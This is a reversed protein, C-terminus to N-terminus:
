TEGGWSRTFIGYSMISQHDLKINNTSDGGTITARNLDIDVAKLQEVFATKSFLKDIYADKITTVGDKIIVDGDNFEILNSNLKFGNRDFTLDQIMGNSDIRFNFGDATQSFETLLKELTKNTGNMETYSVKTNLGLKNQEIETEHKTLVKDQNDIQTQYDEPAPTWDTAKNGKEVKARWVIFEAYFNNDYSRFQLQLHNSTREGTFVVRKAENPAIDVPPATIGNVNVSMPVDRVNKVYFSVTYIDGEVTNTTNTIQKFIKLTSTRDGAGVYVQTADTAGWEDVSINETVKYPGNQHSTWVNYNFDNSNKNLNTGGIELEDFKQEVSTIKSNVSDSLQNIESKTNKIDQTIGNIDTTYESKEVKSSIQNSLLKLESQNTSVNSKVVKLEDDLIQKVTSSDVKLNIQNELVNLASSNKTVEQSLNNIDSETDEPAPTWETPVNGNEVKIYFRENLKNLTEQNNPFFSLYNFTRLSEDNDFNRILNGDAVEWRFGEHTNVGNRTFGL